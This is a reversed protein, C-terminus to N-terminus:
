INQSVCWFGKSSAPSPHFFSPLQRDPGQKLWSLLLWMYFDFRRNLSQRDKVPHLRVFKAILFNKLFKTGLLPNQIFVLAHLSDSRQLWRAPPPPAKHCYSVRKIKTRMQAIHPLIAVIQSSLSTGPSLRSRRISVVLWFVDKILCLIQTWRKSIIELSPAVLAAIDWIFQSRQERDPCSPWWSCQETDSPAVLPQPLAILVFCIIERLYM